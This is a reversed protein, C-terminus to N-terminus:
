NLSLHSTDPAAPPAPKVIEGLDEGPSAVSIGSVDVVVPAVVPIEDPKLLDAGLEDVAIGSLDLDLEPVDRAAELWGDHLGEVAYKSLDMVPPTVVRAPELPEEPEDSFPNRKVLSLHSIDIIREASDAAAAQGQTAASAAVAPAPAASNSAVSVSAPPTAAEPTATQPAPAAASAAPKAPAPSAVTQEDAPKIQVLCGIQNLAQKFKEATAPDCAKKLAVPRGSFYADLKEPPLKFLQAFRAKVDALNQGLVIDGRFIVNVAQEAM